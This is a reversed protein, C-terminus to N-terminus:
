VYAPYVNPVKPQAQSRLRDVFQELRWGQALQLGMPDDTQDIKTENSV